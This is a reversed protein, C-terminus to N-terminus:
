HTVVSIPASPDFKRCGVTGKKMQGTTCFTFVVGRMEVLIRRSQLADLKSGLDQPFSYRKGVIIDGLSPTRLVVTMGSMPVIDIEGSITLTDKSQVGKVPTSDQTPITFSEAFTNSGAGLLCVLCVFLLFSRIHTM